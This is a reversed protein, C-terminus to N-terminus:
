ALADPQLFSNLAAAISHENAYDLPFNVLMLWCSRDLALHLLNSGADHPVFSLWYPEMRHLVGMAVQRDHCSAFTVTVVGLGCPCIDIVWLRLNNIIFNCIANTALPFDLPDVEPALVTITVDENIRRVSTGLFAYVHQPTDEEQSRNYIMFGHPVLAHPDVPNNAMTSLRDFHKAAKAPSLPPPPSSHSPTSQPLVFSPIDTSLHAPPAVVSADLYKRYFINTPRRHMLCTRSIHGYNHCTKCWVQNTCSNHMHGWGLCKFCQGKFISKHQVGSKHLSDWSQELSLNGFLDAKFPPFKLRDFVTKVAPDKEHLLKLPRKRKGCVQQFQDPCKFNLNQRHVHDSKKSYDDSSIHSSVRDAQQHPVGLDNDARSDDHGSSLLFYQVPHDVLDSL